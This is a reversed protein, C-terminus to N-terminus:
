AFFSIKSRPPLRVWSKSEDPRTAGDACCGVILDPPRSAAFCANGHLKRCRFASIRIESARSIPCSRKKQERASKRLNRATLCRFFCLRFRKSHLSPPRTNPERRPRDFVKILSQRTRDGMDKSPSVSLPSNM